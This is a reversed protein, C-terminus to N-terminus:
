EWWQAIVPRLELVGKEDLVGLKPLYWRLESAVAPLWEPHKEVETYHEWPQPSGDTLMLHNTFPYPNYPLYTVHEVPSDQAGRVAYVTENERISTRWQEFEYDMDDSRRYWEERYHLTPFFIVDSTEDVGRSVTTFLDVARGFDDPRLASREHPGCAFKRSLLDPQLISMVYRTNWLEKCLEDPVTLDAPTKGDFRDYLWASNRDKEAVGNLEALRKFPMGWGMARHIRIGM